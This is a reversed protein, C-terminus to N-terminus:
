IVVFDAFTLTPKNVILALLTSGGAANGNSDYYVAGNAKNYVIRDDADHAAAAAFFKSAALAGPGGLQTMVANELHITDNNGAVNSFDTIADRHAANLPANLVFFDNQAGGIVTDIGQGGTLVDSGNLGRLTDNGVGGTLTNNFSNGIIINSLNNGTGARAGAVNILTLNEVTIYGAISRSATSIITDVGASDVIGDGGNELVYVDNGLGGNLTDSGLGGTMTDNGGNGFLVDNGDNGNIVNAGNNGDIRQARDNGTLNIAATGAPSTTALVEIYQYATLAFSVTTLVRDNGQGSLEFTEDGANDVYFLDDGTGGTL